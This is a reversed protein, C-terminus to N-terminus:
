DLIKGANSTQQLKLNIEKGVEQLYTKLMCRFTNKYILKCKTYYNATWNLYNIEHVLHLRIKAYSYLRKIILWYYWIHLRQYKIGVNQYINM